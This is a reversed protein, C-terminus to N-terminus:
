EKRKLKGYADEDKRDDNDDASPKDDNFMDDDDDDKVPKKKKPKKSEGEQSSDSDYGDTRVHKRKQGTRSIGIDEEFAAEREEKEEEVQRIFGPHIPDFRTKKRNEEAQKTTFLDKGNSKEM